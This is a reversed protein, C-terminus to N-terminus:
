WGGREPKGTLPHFDFNQPGRLTLKVSGPTAAGYVAFGTSDPGRDGLAALMGAILGGLAGELRQDKLFLGAIGCM